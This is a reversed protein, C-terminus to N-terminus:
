LIVFPPNESVPLGEWLVEINVKQRDRLVYFRVTETSDLDQKTDDKSCVELCREIEKLLKKYKTESEIDCEFVSKQVRFWYKKLIGSIKNRLKNSSIDYCVIVFM